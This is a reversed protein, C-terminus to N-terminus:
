EVLVGGSGSGGSGSGGSGSGSGAFPETSSNACDDGVDDAEPDTTFLVSERRLAYQASRQGTLFAAQTGTRSEVGRTWTRNAM